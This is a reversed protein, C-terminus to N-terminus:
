RFHNTQIYTDVIAAAMHWNVYRFIHDTMLKALEGWGTGEPTM